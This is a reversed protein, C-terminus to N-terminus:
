AAVGRQQDQAAQYVARAAKAPSTFVGIPVGAATFAEWRRGKDRDVVHGIFTRGDYVDTSTTM